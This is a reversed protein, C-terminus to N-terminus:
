AIKKLFFKLLNKTMSPLATSFRKGYKLLLDRVECKLDRTSSFGRECGKGQM